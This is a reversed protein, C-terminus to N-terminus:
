GGQAETDEDEWIYLPSLYSRSQLAATLNFLSKCLTCSPGEVIVLASHLSSVHLGKAGESGWSGEKGM